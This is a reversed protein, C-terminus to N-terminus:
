RQLTKTIEYIPTIVSVAILGVLLGMVIMLIPEISSSLNRTQEEVEGEYLESLYILTSPLAGTTEGIAIMHTIMDPFLRPNKELSRSVPEGKIVNRAIREYEARYVLNKTTEATISLAETLHVGSRILLGLTRCFNALNYTRTIQGALPLRLLVQDGFYQVPKFLRRAVVVAIVFLAFLGVTLLGWDQLYNSVALLIRTTLPLEVNLSAFIPMIKPFIFVTLMSTVGLTAITIFLPYILAGRVKRQLAHKKTLEDALYNLNQSLIGSSEGVRILNVTFDGFLRSFKALATALFQGNSVDSIVADFVKQKGRSKTQKRILHLCELVPVGSKILFSLRKAFLTQEKVSFRVFSPARRITPAHRPSPAEPLSKKPSPALWGYFTPFAKQLYNNM